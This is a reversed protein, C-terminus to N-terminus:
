AHAAEAKAPSVVRFVSDQYRVTQNQNESVFPGVVADVRTGCWSHQTYPWALVWDGNRHEAPAANELGWAQSAALMFIPRGEHVLMDLLPRQDGQAGAVRPSQFVARIEDVSVAWLVGMLSFGLWHRAPANVSTLHTEPNNFSTM